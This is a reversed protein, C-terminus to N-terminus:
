AMAADATCTVIHYLVRSPVSRVLPKGSRDIQNYWLPGGSMAFWALITGALRNARAAAEEDGMRARRAHYRIAETQPWLLKSAIKVRGDPTVEEFLGHPYSPDREIGYHWGFSALRHSLSSHAEHVDLLWAWEFQHGPQRVDREHPPLSWDTLFYEGMAGDRNALASFLVVIEMARDRADGAWGAQELALFAELLHMHPNQRRFRNAADVPALEHYGGHRTDKLRRDLAELTREIWLDADAMGLRRLYALALLAFAQDYADCREDMVEGGATAAHMWGGASRSWLRSAMWEFGALAIEAYRREGVLLACHAFVYIQRAQVRTHFMENPLPRGGLDFEEVFAGCSSLGKEVFFPLM